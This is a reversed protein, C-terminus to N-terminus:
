RDTVGRHDARGGWRGAEGGGLRGPGAGAARGSRSAVRGADAGQWTMTMNESANDTQGPGTSVSLADSFMVMSTPDLPLFQRTRGPMRGPGGLIGATSQTRRAFPAARTRVQAM